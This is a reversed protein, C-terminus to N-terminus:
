AKQKRKKNKKKKKSKHKSKNETNFKPKKYEPVDKLNLKSLVLCYSDWDTRRLYKLLKKRTQFMQVLGRRSHKDKKHLVNNLYKIKTTLLAVQVRVSGCDSESMKFEERVGKLELKMKEASSMNDPHFYKELLHEQPPNQMFQPLPQGTLNSLITLRQINSNKKTVSQSISALSDRLDRFSLGGLRMESEKEEAERLKALRDNLETLSFEKNGKDAVEPRLMRLKEGLEDHSYSRLFDTRPGKKAEGQDAKERLEKGFISEPLNEGGLISPGKEPEGGRIRTDERFPSFNFPRPPFSDRRLGSPASSDRFQRLSERISDFSLGQSKRDAMDDGAKSITSSKFIEQFSLSPSSAPREGAASPGRLRFEALHKRIDDLSSPQSSPSSLPPPPPPDAPIRRPPAPPAKLREKIDSFVSSYSSRPSPASPESTDADADPPPPPPSSSSSFPRLSRLPTLTKSKLKLYVAAM